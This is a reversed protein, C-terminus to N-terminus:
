KRKGKLMGGGVEKYSEGGKSGAWSSMMSTGGGWKERPDDYNISEGGKASTLLTM